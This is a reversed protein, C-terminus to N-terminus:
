GTHNSFQVFNVTDVEFWLVQLLFMAVWNGELQPHCPESHLAGPVGEHWAQRPLIPWTANADGRNAPAINQKAGAMGPSREVTAGRPVPGGSPHYAIEKKPLDRYMHLCCSLFGLGSPCAPGLAPLLWGPMSPVFIQGDISEISLNVILLSFYHISFKM